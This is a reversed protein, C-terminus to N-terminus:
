AGAGIAAGTLAGLAAGGVANRETNGTTTCASALLGAGVIAINLSLTM